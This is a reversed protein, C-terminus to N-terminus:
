KFSQLLMEIWLITVLRIRKLINLTLMSPSRLGATIASGMSLSVLLFWGDALNVKYFNVDPRTELKIEAWIHYLDYVVM